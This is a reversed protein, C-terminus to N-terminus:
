FRSLGAEAQAKAKEEKTSEAIKGYFQDIQLSLTGYFTASPSYFVNRNQGDEGLTLVENNYGIQVSMVDYIGQTVSLDVSSNTLYTQSGGEIRDVRVCEGQVMVECFNGKFEDRFRGIMRFTSGISFDKYIPLDIVIAPIIRDRDMASFRLQDSLFSTGAASQRTRELDPNTATTARSFLHSWTFNPVLTLNPLFDSDKGFLPIVQTLSTGLSTTLYKGQASSVKSTPFITRARLGWVSVWEKDESTFLSFNYGLGLQMDDFQPERKTTTDSSNTLETTTSIQANVFLKHNPEDFFWWQPNFAVSLDFYEDEYGINDRGVGLMTTTASNTYSLTSARFAAPRLAKPTDDEATDASATQAEAALPVLALAALMSSLALRSYTM